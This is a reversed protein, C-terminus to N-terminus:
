RVAARRKHIACRSVAQAVVLHVTHERSLAGAVPRRLPQPAVSPPLLGAVPRRLPQAPDAAM